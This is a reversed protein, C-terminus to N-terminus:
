QGLSAHAAAEELLGCEGVSAADGPALWSARHLPLPPVDHSGGSRPERRWIRRLTRAARFRRGPFRHQRKLAARPAFSSVLAQPM